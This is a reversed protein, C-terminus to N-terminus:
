RQVRSVDARCRSARRTLRARESPTMGDGLMQRVGAVYSSSFEEQSGSPTM